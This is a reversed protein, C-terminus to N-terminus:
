QFVPGYVARARHGEVLEDRFALQGSRVARLTSTDLSSTRAPSLNTQLLLGASDLVVVLRNAETFLGTPGSAGQHPSIRGHELLEDAQLQYTTRLARDMEGALVDRVGAYALAGLGLLGATMTLAFRVALTRQLSRGERHSM